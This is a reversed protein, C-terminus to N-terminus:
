GSMVLYVFLDFLRVLFLTNVHGWFVEGSFVNIVFPFLPVKCRLLRFSVVTLSFIRIPHLISVGSKHREQGLHVVLIQEHSSILDM